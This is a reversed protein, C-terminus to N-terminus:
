VLTLGALGVALGLVGWGVVERFAGSPKHTSTTSASSTTSSAASSVPSTANGATAADKSCTENSSVQFGDILVLDTCQYLNGDGGDYQVQLTVKSGNVLGLGMGGLNVNFCTDGKTIQFFPSALPISSGNSTKNFDGFSTPNESTSVFAVVTAQGHHSNIHVPASGLPFPQRTTVDPFGGCFGPEKDAEFGRSKPYDLTFHALASSALLSSALLTKLSIM